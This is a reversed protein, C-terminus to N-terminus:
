KQGGNLLDLMLGEKEQFPSGREQGGVSADNSL